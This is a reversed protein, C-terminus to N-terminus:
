SFWHIFLAKAASVALSSSSVLGATVTNLNAVGSEERQGDIQLLSSHSDNMEGPLKLARSLAAAM